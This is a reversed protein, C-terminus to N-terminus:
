QRSDIIMECLISYGFVNLRSEGDLTDDSIVSRDGRGDCDHVAAEIDSQGGLLDLGEALAMVGYLGATTHAPALDISSM